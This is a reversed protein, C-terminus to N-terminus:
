LLDPEKSLFDGVCADRIAITEFIIDAQWCVMIVSKNLFGAFDDIFAGKKSISFLFANNTNAITVNPISIYMEINSTWAIAVLIQLCSYICQDVVEHHVVSAIELSTNACFM